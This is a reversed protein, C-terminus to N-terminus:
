WPWLCRDADILAELIESLEDADDVVDSIFEVLETLSSSMAAEISADVVPEPELVASVASSFATFAARLPPRPVGAASDPQLNENGKRQTLAYTSYKVV